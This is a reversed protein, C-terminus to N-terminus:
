FSFDAKHIWIETTESVEDLDRRDVDALDVEVVDREHITTLESTDVQIYLGKTLIVTNSSTIIRVPVPVANAVLFISSVLLLFSTPRM